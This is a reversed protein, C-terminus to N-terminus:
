LEFKKILNGDEGLSGDEALRLEKTDSFQRVEVRYVDDRIEIMIHNENYEPDKLFESIAKKLVVIGENEQVASSYVLEKVENM